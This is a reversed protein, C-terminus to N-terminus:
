TRGSTKSPRGSDHTSEAYDDIEKTEKILELGTTKQSIEKEHSVNSASQLKSPKSSLKKKTGEQSKAELGLTEIQGVINEISTPGFEELFDSLIHQISLLQWFDCSIIKNGKIVAGTECLLRQDLM